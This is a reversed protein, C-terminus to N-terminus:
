LTKCRTKMAPHIRHGNGREYRTSWQPKKSSGCRHKRTGRKVHSWQPEPFHPDAPGAAPGGTPVLCYENRQPSDWVPWNDLKLGTKGLNRFNEASKSRNVKKRVCTVINPSLAPAAETPNWRRDGPLRGVKVLAMIWLPTGLEGQADTVGASARLRAIISALRTPQLTTFSVSSTSQRRLLLGSSSM